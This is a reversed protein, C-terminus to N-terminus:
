AEPALKAAAGHVPARPWLHAEATQQRRLETSWNNAEQVSSRKNIPFLVQDLEVTLQTATILTATNIQGGPVPRLADILRIISSASKLANLGSSYMM